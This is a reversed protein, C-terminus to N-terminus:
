LHLRWPGEFRRSGSVVHRCMGCSELEKKFISYLKLVM